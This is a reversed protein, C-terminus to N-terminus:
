ARRLWQAVLRRGGSMKYRKLYTPVLMPNRVAFAADQEVLARIALLPIPCRLPRFTSSWLGEEETRDHFLGVMRDHLLSKLRLTRQVASLGALGEADRCNPFGVIVARFNGMRKAHPISDFARFAELMQQRIVPVDRGCALSVGFRLTDIRAGQATFPCVDGTRGLDPHASMLFSRTWHLLTGYTQASDEGADGFDGRAIDAFSLLPLHPEPTNM